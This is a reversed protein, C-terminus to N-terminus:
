TSLYESYISCRVFDSIRTIITYPDCYRIVHIFIVIIAFRNSPFQMVLINIMEKRYISTYGRIVNSKSEKLLHVLYQNEYCM